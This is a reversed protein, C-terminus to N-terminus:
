QKIVQAFRYLMEVMEERTVPRKYELNGEGTGKIIGNSEAWARAAESWDSPAATKQDWLYRSMLLTFTEWETDKPAPAPDTVEKKTLGGRKVLVEVIADACQEAFAETLIIPADVTSDMFGLELLVAPMKTNRLVYLASEAMPDARNGKLGTRAVLAAYMEEQLSVTAKDNALPDRYVVIGGGNFIRGAANHHVAVFVDAGFDNAIKCRGALGDPHPVLGNTDDVRVLTYGDYFSLKKEVKDCIRDNLWWERTENPDLEKPLRKGATSLVHGAGLAIKYM